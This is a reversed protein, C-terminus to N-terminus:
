DAFDDPLPTITTQSDDHVLNRIRDVLEVSTFVGAKPTDGENMIKPTITVLYFRM